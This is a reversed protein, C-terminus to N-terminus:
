LRESMKEILGTVAKKYRAYEEQDTGEIEALTGLLDGFEKVLVEFHMKFAITSASKQSKRLEELEKMVDDPIKEIVSAPTVVAEIPKDELQQQLEKIRDNAANLEDDTKAKLEQLREVEESDGSAQAESLQRKTEELELRLKEATEYHEKNTKELKDSSEQAEKEAADLKEKLNEKDKLAEDREKIAKQLERTSMNEIDHEETFKEREERPVGLLAVAQTYSLNGLAQSNASQGLLMPQGYEEYIRMLNNATSQSYDVYKELWNGWEGHPVTAKAEVLCRGIEISNYLLMKMTQRKINNIEAAIVDPTRNIVVAAEM